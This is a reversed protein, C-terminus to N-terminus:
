STKPISWPFALSHPDWRLDNRSAPVASPHLAGASHTLGEGAACFHHVLRTKPGLDRFSSCCFDAKELRLLIKRRTPDSLGELVTTRNASECVTLGQIQPWPRAAQDTERKRTLAQM